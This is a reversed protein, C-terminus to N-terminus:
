RHKRLLPVILAAAAPWAALLLFHPWLYAAERGITLNPRTRSVDMWDVALAVTGLVALAAFASGALWRLWKRM